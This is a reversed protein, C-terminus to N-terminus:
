PKPPPEVQLNNSIQGIGPTLRLMAEVLRREDDDRVMGTLVVDRGKVSLQIKDRSVLRDSQAIMGRLDAQLEPATITRPVPSKVSLAVMAMRSGAAGSNSGGAGGFAGGGGFGTGRGGTVSATGTFGGGGFTGGGGGFTGGGTRGGGFTGGGGGFTGGGGGFTGGGGGFTGGGGGFTGGTTTRGGGFSAGGTMGGTRTGTNTGGFGTTRSTGGGFSSGGGFGFGGGSTGGASTGFTPQGFGGGSSTGGRNGSSSISALGASMPNSYYGRFLNTQNLSSNGSGTTLNGGSTLPTDGTL